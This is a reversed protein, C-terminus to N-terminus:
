TSFSLTTKMKIIKKMHCKLKTDSIGATLQSNFGSIFHNQQLFHAKHNWWCFLNQVSGTHSVPGLHQSQLSYQHTEGLQFVFSVVLCFMYFIDTPQLFFFTFLLSWGFYMFIYRLSWRWHTLYFAWTWIYVNECDDKFLKFQMKEKLNTIPFSWPQNDPWSFLPPKGNSPWNFLSLWTHLRTFGTFNFVM